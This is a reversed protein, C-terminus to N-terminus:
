VWFWIRSAPLRRTRFLRSGYAATVCCNVWPVAIDEEQSPYRKISHDTKTWFKM